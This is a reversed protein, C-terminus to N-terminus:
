GLTSVISSFGLLCQFPFGYTRVWSDMILSIELGGTLAWLM